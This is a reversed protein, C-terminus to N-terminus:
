RITRHSCIILGPIQCDGWQYKKFITKTRPGQNVWWVNKHLALKWLFGSKPNKNFNFWKEILEAKQNVSFNDDKQYRTNGETFERDTWKNLGLNKSVTKCKRRLYRVRRLNLTPLKYIEHSNYFINWKIKNIKVQQLFIPNNM